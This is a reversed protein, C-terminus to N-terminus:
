ATPIPEVKCKSRDGLRDADSEFPDFEKPILLRHLDNLLPTILLELESAKPTPSIGNSTRIFLEDDFMDRLKALTRSMASQSVCMQEAARSVNREKLLVNLSVILNLDIRSLEFEICNKM